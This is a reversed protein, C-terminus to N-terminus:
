AGKYIGQKIQSKKACALDRAHQQPSKFCDVRLNHLRRRDQIDTVIVNDIDDYYPYTLGLCESLNYCQVCQGM